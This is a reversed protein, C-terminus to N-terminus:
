EPISTVPEEYGEEGCWRCSDLRCDDMILAECNCCQVMDDDLGLDEDPVVTSISDATNVAGFLRIGAFDRHL